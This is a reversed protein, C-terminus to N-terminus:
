NKIDNKFIIKYAKNSFYILFFVGSIATIVELFLMIYVYKM